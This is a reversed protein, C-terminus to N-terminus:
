LYTNCRRTCVVVNERFGDRDLDFAAVSDKLSTYQIGNGDLDLIIPPIMCQYNVSCIFDDFENEIDSYRM